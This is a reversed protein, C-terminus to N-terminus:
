YESKCFEIIRSILMCGDAEQSSQLSCSVTRDTPEGCDPFEQTKTEFSKTKNDTQLQENATASNIEVQSSTILFHCIGSNNIEREGMCVCM